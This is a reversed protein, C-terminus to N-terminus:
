EGGSKEMEEFIKIKDPLVSPRRDTMLYLYPMRHVIYELYGRAFDSLGRSRRGMILIYFWQALLCVIALVGYVWGVIGIAIWYLIRVFLELRRPRM